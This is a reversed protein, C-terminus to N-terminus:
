RVITFTSKGLSVTGDDVEVSYTSGAQPQMQALTFLKRVTPAWINNGTGVAIAPLPMTLESRGQPLQRALMLTLASHTFPAGGYGTVSLHVLRLHRISFRTLDGLCGLTHPSFQKPSCVHLGIADTLSSAVNAPATTPLTGLLPSCRSPFCIAVVRDGGTAVTSLHDARLAWTVAAALLALVILAAILLGWHSSTQTSRLPDYREAPAYLPVQGPRTSAGTQLRTTQRQYDQDSFSM